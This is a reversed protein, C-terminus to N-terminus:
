GNKKIHNIYYNFVKPYIQKQITVEAYYKLTNKVWNGDNIDILRKDYKGSQIKKIDEKLGNKIEEIPNKNALFKLNKRMVEEQKPTTIQKALREVSNEYDKAFKSVQKKYYNTYIKLTSKFLVNNGGSRLIGGSNRGM